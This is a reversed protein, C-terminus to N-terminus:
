RNIRAALRSIARERLPKQGRELPRHPLLRWRVSAWCWGDFQGSCQVDAMRSAVPISQRHAIAHELWLAMAEKANDIAEDLGSDAASFCGPLDPVVVGWQTTDNGPEIAIPYQM